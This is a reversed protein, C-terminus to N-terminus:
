KFTKPFKGLIDRFKSTNESIDKQKADFCSIYESDDSNLYFSELISVADKLRKSNLVSSLNLTLLGHIHRYAYAQWFEQVWKITNEETMYTALIFNDMYLKGRPPRCSHINDLGDQLMAVDMTMLAKGETSCKRIKSFGELLIDFASQCLEM